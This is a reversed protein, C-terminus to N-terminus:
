RKHCRRRGLAGFTCHHKLPLSIIRSSGCLSSVPLEQSPPMILQRLEHAGPCSLSDEKEAKHAARLYNSYTRDQLRAKLYAVMAKLCKPLRGYFHDRKLGAVQEPPFHDPISAAIIQLHRSLCVGWDSVTEKDAM